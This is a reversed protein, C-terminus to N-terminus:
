TNTQHSSTHTQPLAEPSSDSSNCHSTEHIYHCVKGHCCSDNRLHKECAPLLRILSEVPCPLQHHPTHNSSPDNPNSSKTKDFADMIYSCLLDQLTIGEDEFSKPGIDGSNNSNRNAGSPTDSYTM